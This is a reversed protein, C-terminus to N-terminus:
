AEACRALEADAALVIDCRYGHCSACGMAVQQGRGLGGLSDPRGFPIRELDFLM